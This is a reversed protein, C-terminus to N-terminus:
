PEQWFHFHNPALRSAPIPELGTEEPPLFRNLWAEDLRAEQARLNTNYEELRKAKAAEAEAKVLAQVEKVLAPCCRACYVQAGDVACWTHANCAQCRALSLGEEM